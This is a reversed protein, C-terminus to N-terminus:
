HLRRSYERAIAPGIASSWEEFLECARDRPVPEVGLMACTKEYVTDADPLGPNPDDSM